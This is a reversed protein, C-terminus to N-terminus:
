RAKPERSGDGAPAEVRGAFRAVGPVRTGCRRGSGLRNRGRGIRGLAVLLMLTGLLVALRAQELVPPIPLSEIVNM